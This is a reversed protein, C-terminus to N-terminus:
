KKAGISQLSAKMGGGAGSRDVNSQMHAGASGRSVGHSTLGADNLAGRSM